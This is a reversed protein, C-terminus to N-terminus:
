IGNLYTEVWVEFRPIKKWDKVLTEGSTMHISFTQGKKDKYFGDKNQRPKDYAPFNEWGCCIFRLPAMKFRQVLFREVKSADTGPVWYSAILRDGQGGMIKKCEAFRLEKPKGGWVQLFDECAQPPKAFSVSCSPATIVVALVIMGMSLHVSPRGVDQFLAAASNRLPM